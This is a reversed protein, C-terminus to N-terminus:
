LLSEKEYLILRDLLNKVKTQKPRGRKKKQPKAPYLELAKQSILFQYHHPYVALGKIRAGYQTPASVGAPFTSHNLHECCPCIKQEVQHEAECTNVFHPESRAIHGPQGGVINNLRDHPFGGRSRGRSKRLSKSM